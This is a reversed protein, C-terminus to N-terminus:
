SHQRKCAFGFSKFDSSVLGFLWSSHEFKTGCGTRSKAALALPKPLNLLLM